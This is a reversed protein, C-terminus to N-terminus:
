SPPREAIIDSGGAVKQGPKVVVRCGEPLFLDVRSGFRILGFRQGKEVRDGKNIWCVIRRAILGAIQIVEVKFDGDCIVISNRENVKSADEKYAALFRGTSYTVEETQGSIPCRNVHVNFINLFISVQRRGDELQRVTVVKGDAPSVVANADGAIQRYPNRFFYAVYLALVALVATLWLPGGWFLSVLALLGPPFLFVWGERAILERHHKELIGEGGFDFCRIM